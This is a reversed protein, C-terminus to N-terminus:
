YLYIHGAGPVAEPVGVSEMGSLMRNLLQANRRRLSNASDLNELQIIGIAAQLNSFGVKWGEPINELIESSGKKHEVPNYPDRINLFRMVPYLTFYFVSPRTLINAIVANIVSVVLSSKKVPRYGATTNEIFEAINMDNTCVMGGGFTSIAKAKGFSFISADSFCGAKTGGYEAGCAMACDEVIRFGYKEALQAFEHMRGPQGWMHTLILLRTDPTILREVQEPTVNYTDEDIDAFVVRVPFSKIVTFISQHTFPTIIVESNESLDYYKLLLYLGLRASSVTKAYKTGTYEAFKKEFQDIHEGEHFRRSFIMSFLTLYEKKSIDVSHRPYARFM